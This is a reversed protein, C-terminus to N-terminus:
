RVVLSSGDEDAANAFFEAGDQLHVTCFSAQVEGGGQWFSVAVAGYGRSGRQLVQPQPRERRRIEARIRALSEDQTKAARRWRFDWLSHASQAHDEGGLLRSTHLAFLHDCSTNRDHGNLIPRPRNQSRRRQQEIVSRFRSVAQSLRHRM